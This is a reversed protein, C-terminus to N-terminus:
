SPNRVLPKLYRWAPAGDEYYAPKDGVRRYGRREYMAIAAANDQRVELALEGAGRARSEREVRRLLREGTGRGRAEPAVVISYLRALRAGARFLVLANGHLRGGAVAVLLLSNGRGLLHHRFQRRTLRDTAFSRQELAVLAALDALRAPRVRM